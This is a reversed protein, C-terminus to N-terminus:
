ALAVLAGLPVLHELIEGFSRPISQATPIAWFGHSFQSIPKILPLLAPLPSAGVALAIWIAWDFRRREYTRGLEGVARPVFLLVSYYHTLVPLALSLATLVLGLRRPGAGTAAQWGYLALGSWGLVMGYPRADYAKLSAATALPIVMAALAI